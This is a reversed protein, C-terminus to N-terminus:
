YNAPLMKDKFRVAQVTLGRPALSVSLELSTLSAELLNQTSRRMSNLPKM